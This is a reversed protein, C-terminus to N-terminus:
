IHIRQDYQKHLTDLVLFIIHIIFPGSIFRAFTNLITNDVWLENRKIFDVVRARRGRPLRIPM